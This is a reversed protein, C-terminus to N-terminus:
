EVNITFALSSCEHREGFSGLLPQKVHLRLGELRGTELGVEKVKAV